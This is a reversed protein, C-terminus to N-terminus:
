KSCWTTSTFPGASQLFRRDAPINGATQETWETTFDPDSTGPFCLIVYILLLVKVLGM